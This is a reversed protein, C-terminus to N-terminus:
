SPLPTPDVIADGRNMTLRPLPTLAATEAEMLAGTAGPAVAYAITELADLFPRLSDVNGVLSRKDKILRVLSLLDIKWVYRTDNSTELPLRALERAMDVDDGTLWSYAALTHERSALIVHRAVEARYRMTDSDARHVRAQLYGTTPVFMTDPLISYRGSLENPSANPDYVLHLADDISSNVIVKIQTSKFPVWIHKRVLVKFLERPSPKEPFISPGHGATAVRLIMEDGGMYDILTLNHSSDGSFDTDTVSFLRQEAAAVVPRRTLNEGYPGEPSLRVNESEAETM